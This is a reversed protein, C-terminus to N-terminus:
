PRTEKWGNRERYERLVTTKIRNFLEKGEGGGMALQDLYLPKMLHLLKVRAGLRIDRKNHKFRIVGTKKDPKSRKGVSYEKCPSKVIYWLKYGFQGYEIQKQDAAAFNPMIAKFRNNLKKVHKALIKQEIGWVLFHGHWSVMGKINRGHDDYINNYYAPEIMGIYNLGRLRGGLKRRMRQLDIKQPEASTVLSKDSLTVLFAPESPYIENDPIAFFGFVERIFIRGWKIRASANVAPLYFADSPELIDLNVHRQQYRRFSLAEKLLSGAKKEKKRLLKLTELLNM